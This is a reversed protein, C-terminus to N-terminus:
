EFLDAQITTLTKREQRYDQEQLNSERLQKDLDNIKRELSQALNNVKDIEVSQDIGEKELKAAATRYAQLEMSHQNFYETKQNLPKAVYEMWVSKYTRCIQLHKAAAAYAARKQKMAAIENTLGIQKKGLDYIVKDYDGATRIQNDAMGQLMKGLFRANEIGARREVAAIRRKLNPSESTPNISAGLSESLHMGQINLRKKSDGVPVYNYQQNPYLLITCQGAMSDREVYKEPIFLREIGHKSLSLTVGRLSMAKIQNETLDIRIPQVNNEEDIQQILKAGRITGHTGDEYVVDYSFDNGVNFTIEGDSSTTVERKNVMLKAPNDNDDHVQLVLGNKGASLIQRSSLKVAATCVEPYQITLEQYRDILTIEADEAIQMEGNKLAYEIGESTFESGLADEPVWAGDLVTARYLVQGTAKKVKTEIGATKLKDAFDAMGTATSLIGTITKRLYKQEQANDSLRACIGAYTFTDTDSLSNDRVARGAGELLYSMHKGRITPTIELEKAMSLFQSYDTARELCFNLRKRIETRNSVSKKKGANEPYLQGIKQPDDIVSLHAEMCLRDSIDRIQRATRYPVTRLKKYDYFSVANIMIHNHIHGKDIHTAVVYEYKGGTYEFALKKGLEHAQEPTVADEPSFSQILHYALNTSRQRKLNRAKHALVATMEFDISATQPECNYGSVLMQGDTKDPNEIYALAKGLTSKIAHIKTIAM